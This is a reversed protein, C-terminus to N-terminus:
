PGERHHAVDAKFSRNHQKATEEGSINSFTPPIKTNQIKRINFESGRNYESPSDIEGDKEVSQAHQM